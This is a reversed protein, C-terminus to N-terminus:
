ISISLSKPVRERCRVADVFAVPLTYSTWGLALPAKDQVTQRAMNRRMARAGLDVPESGAFLVSGAPGRSSGFGRADRLLALLSTM